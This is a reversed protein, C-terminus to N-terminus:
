FKLNPNQGFRVIFSIIIELGEKVSLNIMKTQIPAFYSNGRGTAAFDVEVFIKGDVTKIKSNCNTRHILPAHICLGCKEIFFVNRITKDYNM